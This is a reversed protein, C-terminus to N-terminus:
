FETHMILSQDLRLGKKMLDRTQIGRSQRIVRPERRLGKKM